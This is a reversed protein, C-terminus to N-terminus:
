ESEKIVITSAWKDGYRKREDSLVMAADVINFIPIYLSIARLAAKDYKDTIADGSSEDIVRLKMLKKGVSQGDLFPLADKTLHYAIGAIWGVVPVQSVITILIGDILAAVFRDAPSALQFNAQNAEEGDLFQVDDDLNLM